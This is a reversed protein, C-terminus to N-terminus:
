AVLQFSETLMEAFRQAIPEADHNPMTGSLYIGAKLDPLAPLGHAAGLILSPDNAVRAPLATVGFGSTWAARVSSHCKSTYVVEFTRDAQLLTDRMLARYPCGEAFAVLRLPRDSDVMLNPRGVWVMPESWSTSLGEEAIENSITFLFDLAGDKLGAILNPAIDCSVDFTLESNRAWDQSLLRELMADAFEMPVGIRIQGRIDRSALRSVLEDNIALMRRAYREVLRGYETVNSGGNERDFLPCGIQDQLRKIQLSIAPQSRGLREGARTFGKLDIVTIFARLLETPINQM